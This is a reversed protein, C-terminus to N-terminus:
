SLTLDWHWEKKRCRSLISLSPLNVGSSRLSEKGDGEVREGDRGGGFVIVVNLVNM